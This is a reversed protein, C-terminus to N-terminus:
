ALAELFRKVNEEVDGKFVASGAVIMNAGADLVQDVNALTIGGDVEIDIDPNAMDALKRTQRIKELSEPMFSQGGFGPEVSMILVQDIDAIIGSLAEVPTAPKISVGAKLGAKHIRDIDGRIDSVAEIHVTFIDAGAAAFDDLYRVPERVMMHVDLTADPLAKRVFRMVPVGFSINPVFDGDMVDVHVIDMGASHAKRLEREMHGFDIALMSPSLKNM